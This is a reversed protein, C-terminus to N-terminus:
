NKWISVIKKLDFKAQEVISIFGVIKKTEKNYLLVEELVDAIYDKHKVMKLLGDEMLLDKFLESNRECDEGVLPM